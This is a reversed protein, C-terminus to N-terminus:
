HLPDIIIDFCGCGWFKHLLEVLGLLLSTDGFACVEVLYRSEDQVFSEGLTLRPPGLKVRGAWETVNGM